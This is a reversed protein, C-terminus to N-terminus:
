HQEYRKNSALYLAPYFKELHKIIKGKPPTSEVDFGHRKCFDLLKLRVEENLDENKHEIDSSDRNNQNDSNKSILEVEGVAYDLEPSFDFDIRYNDEIVFSHRITEFSGLTNIQYHNLFSELTAPSTDHKESKLQKHDKYLRDIIDKIKNTSEVEVYREINDIRKQLHMRTGTFVGDAFMFLPVKCQWKNAALDM